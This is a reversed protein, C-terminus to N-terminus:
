QSIKVGEIIDGCIPAAGDILKFADGTLKVVTMCNGAALGGAVPAPDAFNITHNDGLGGNWTTSNRLAKVLDAQSADGGAQQLGYIFLDALGWGVYEGFTPITTVNAYQKLAAQFAETGPTKLEVAGAAQFDVGQAAAVAPKSALIDGGYGTPLLIAKMNVGAQKLGAVVAFALSPTVPMYLCDSGSNKVAIVEPGIDTSGPALKANLYGEALGAKKASIVAGEAARGSSPGTNGIAAVKTCGQAKFFQGFTTAALSYDAYGSSDFFTPYSKADWEPGGDFSVGIVPMDATKAAPAAGFFSSSADLIAYVKDQKILKQTASLAGSASSADDAMTYTLKHGDVGGKANEVGFRAKIGNEVTLFGSAYGGSLSTVVGVNIPAGAKAASSPSGTDGAGGGGGGGGSSSSGCAALTLGLAAAAGAAILVRGRRRIKSSTGNRPRASNAGPTTRSTFGDVAATRGAIRM